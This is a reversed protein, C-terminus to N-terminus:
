WLFQPGGLFTLWRHVASFPGNPKLIEVMNIFIDLPESFIPQYKSLEWGNLYQNLYNKLQNEKSFCIIANKFENVHRTTPHKFKWLFFSLCHWAQVSEHRLWLGWVHEFSNRWLQEQPFVESTFYSTFHQYFSRREWFCCNKASTQTENTKLFVLLKQTDLVLQSDVIM